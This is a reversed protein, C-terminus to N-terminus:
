ENSIWRRNTIYAQRSYNPKTPYKLRIKKDRLLPKLYNNHLTKPSRSLLSTLDRLSMGKHACLKLIVSTVESKPAKRKNAITAAIDNLHQNKHSGENLDGSNEILAGNNTPWDIVQNYLDAHRASLLFYITGRGSGQKFLLLRDVLRRFLDSLDRPHINLIGMIRSHNTTTEIHATVLIQRENGTLKDFNTDGLLTCLAALTVEPLLSMMHLELLTHDSPKQLTKLAPERWHQNKWASLIEPLGLGAREGLGIHRFMDQLIRNRCDSHGGSKADEVPIRMLGPNRFEFMDPRKVVLISSRCTYDAHILTNVLAERLAKHVPTDDQRQDGKLKFPVKLELTLKRIVHKYFDYVNGSWSGDLTLRDVLRVEAEAKPKGQYDLMYYPFIKKIEVSRGFMLLGALTLGSRGSERDKRWGVISNLFEQPNLQNWPQDPKLNAYLQRYSNFSEIDLDSLGYDDLIQADRGEEGQEALMHEVAENNQLQNTSSFRRYTGTFHNGNIYVPRHKRLAQPVCVQIIVKDNIYQPRVSSNQLISESVKELSNFTTWFENIVKDINKIGVLEFHGNPKERLGLFIHGGVTNAFASYTKWLSKPVAGKGDKGQALKCEIDVGEKLASIDELSNVELM